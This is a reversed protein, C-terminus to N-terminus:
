SLETEEGHSRDLEISSCPSPCPKRESSSPFTDTPDMWVSYTLKRSKVFHRVGDAESAGDVSVSIVHLGRPGFREQISELVQGRASMTRVMHGLHEFTYVSGPANGHEDSSRRSRYIKCQPRPRRKKVVSKTGHKLPTSSSSSVRSQGSGQAILSLPIKSARLNDAVTDRWVLILSDGVRALRPYGSDRSHDLETVNLTTGISGDAMVRRLRLVADNRRARFGLFWPRASRYCFQM